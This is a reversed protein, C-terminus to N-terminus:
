CEEDAGERYVADVYAEQAEQATPLEVTVAVTEAPHEAAYEETVFEGTTADRYGVIKRKTRPKGKM